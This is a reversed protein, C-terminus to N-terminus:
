CGPRFGNCGETVCFPNQLIPHPSTGRSGITFPRSDITQKSSESSPTESKPSLSDFRQCQVNINSNSSLQYDVRATARTYLDDTCKCTSGQDVARISRTSPGKAFAAKGPASAAVSDRTSKLSMPLSLGAVSPALPCWSIRHAAMLLLRESPMLHRRSTVLACAPFAPACHM